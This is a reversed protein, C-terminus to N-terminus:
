KTKSYDESTKDIIRNLSSSVPNNKSVTLKRTPLINLIKNM